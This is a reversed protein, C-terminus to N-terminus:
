AAVSRRSFDRSVRRLALYHAIQEAVLEPVVGQGQGVNRLWVTEAVEGGPTQVAVRAGVRAAQKIARLRARLEEMPPPFAASCPAPPDYLPPGLSYSYGNGLARECRTQEEAIALALPDHELDAIVGAQLVLDQAYEYAQAPDMGALKDAADDVMEGVLERETERSLLQGVIGDLTTLSEAEDLRATEEAAIVILPYDVRAAARLKFNLKWGRNPDPTVRKPIYQWARSFGGGVGDLEVSLIPGGDPWCFTFDVHASLFYRRHRPRLLREDRPELRILKALPVQAFLQLKPAWRSQLEQFLAREAASDFITPSREMGDWQSKPKPRSLVAKNGSYDKNASIAFM